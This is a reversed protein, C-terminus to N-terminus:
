AKLFPDVAYGSSSSQMSTLDKCRFRQTNLDTGTDDWNQILVLKPDACRLKLGLVLLLVLM